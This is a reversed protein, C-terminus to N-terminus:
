QWRETVQDRGWMHITLSASACAPTRRIWPQEAASNSWLSFLRQCKSQYSNDQYWEKRPLKRLHAKKEQDRMNWRKHFLIIIASEFGQQKNNELKVALHKVNPSNHRISKGSTNENAFTKSLKKEMPSSNWSQLNYLDAGQDRSSFSSLSLHTPEVM